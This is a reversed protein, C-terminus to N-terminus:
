FFDWVLNMLGKGERGEVRRENGGDLCLMFTQPCTCKNYILKKWTVRSAVVLVVVM